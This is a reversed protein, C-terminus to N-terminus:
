LLSISICTESRTIDDDTYLLEWEGLLNQSAFKATQGKVSEFSEVIDLIEQKNNDNSGRATSSILNTLTEKMSSINIADTATSMMRFQFIDAKLVRMRAMTSLGSSRMFSNANRSLM